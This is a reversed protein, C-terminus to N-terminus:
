VIAPLNTFVATVDGEGLIPGEPTWTLFTNLGLERESNSTRAPLAQRACDV